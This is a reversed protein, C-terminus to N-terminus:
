SKLFGFLLVLAERVSLLLECKGCQSISIFIDQFMNFLGSLLRVISCRFGVANAKRGTHALFLDPGRYAAGGWLGGLYDM